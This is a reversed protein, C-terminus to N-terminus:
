PHTPTHRHPLLPLTTRRVQTPGPHAHPTASATTIADPSLAQRNLFFFEDAAAPALLLLLMATTAAMPMATFPPVSHGGILLISNTAFFASRVLPDLEHCTHSEQVHVAAAM